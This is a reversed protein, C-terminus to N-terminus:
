YLMKKLTNKIKSNYHPNYLYNEVSSAHLYGDMFFKISDISMNSVIDHFNADNVIWKFQYLLKIDDIIYNYNYLKKKNSIPKFGNQKIIKNLNILCKSDSIVLTGDINNYNKYVYGYVYQMDDSINFRNNLLKINAIDEGCKMDQITKWKNGSMLIKCKDTCYVPINSLNTFIMYTNESDELKKFSRLFNSHTLCHDYEDLELKYGNNTLILNNM